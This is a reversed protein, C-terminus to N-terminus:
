NKLKSCFKGFKKVIEVNVLRIFEPGPNNVLSPPLVIACMKSLIQNMQACLKGLYVFENACM